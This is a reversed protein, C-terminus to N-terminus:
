QGAKRSTTVRKAVNADIGADVPGNYPVSPYLQQGFGQL